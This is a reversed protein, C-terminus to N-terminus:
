VRWNTQYLPFIRVGKPFIIWDGSPNFGISVVPLRLSPTGHLPKYPIVTTYFLSGFKPRIVLFSYHTPSAFKFRVLARFSLRVGGFEIWSGWPAADTCVRASAFHSDLCYKLFYDVTILTPRESSGGDKKREREEKGDCRLSVREFSPQFKASVCLFSHLLSWPLKNWNMKRQEESIRTRIKYWQLGMCVSIHCGMAQAEQSQCVCVGHLGMFLMGFYMDRKCDGGMRYIARASWFSGLATKKGRNNLSRSTKFNCFTDVNTM